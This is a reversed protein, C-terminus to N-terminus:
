KGTEENDRPVSGGPSEADQDSAAGRFLSGFSPRPTTKDLLRYEAIWSRISRSWKNAPQVSPVEVAREQKKKAIKIIRRM